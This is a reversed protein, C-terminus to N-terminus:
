RCESSSRSSAFSWRATLEKKKEKEKGGKKVNGMKMKWLREVRRRCTKM